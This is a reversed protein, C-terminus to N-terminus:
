LGIRCGFCLGAMCATTPRAWFASCGGHPAWWCFSGGFVFGLVRIQGVFLLLTRCPYSWQRLGRPPASPRTQARSVPPPKGDLFAARYLPQFEPQLLFCVRICRSSTRRDQSTVQCRSGGIERQALPTRATDAWVMPDGPLTLSVLCLSRRAWRRACPCAPEPM